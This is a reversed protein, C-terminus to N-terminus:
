VTREGDAAAVEIAPQDRSVPRIIAASILLTMPRPDGKIEATMAKPADLGWIERISALAALAQALLQPNGSQGRRTRRTKVKVPVVAVDSAGADADANKAPIEVSEETSDEGTADELSREWAAIAEACIHELQATQRAKTQAVTASLEEYVRKEIRALALSVAQQSVKLEAAIRAQLWGRQRLAWVRKEREASIESRPRNGRRKAM